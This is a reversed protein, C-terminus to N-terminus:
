YSFEIKKIPWIALSHRSYQWRRASHRTYNMNQLTKLLTQEFLYLYKKKPLVDPYLNSNFWDRQSPFEVAM